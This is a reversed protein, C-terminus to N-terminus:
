AAAILRELEEVALGGPERRERAFENALRQLTENVPTPVGHLRGLLVIEGNLYDAEISGTRRALSQVSSSGMRELGEVPPIDVRDGRVARHEDDGSYAIGAADLVARAEAHTRDAIARAAPPRGVLAELANSTNTVLKGYKWRMVDETAAAVFRAADLDAVVREALADLGAPYRGVHLVGTRPSGEAHVVGPQTHTAPLWVNVGYVWRFTRLALRENEVGNQACLVPLSEAAPRGGVPRDAWGALAGATDQSKTALVLVDDDRPALEGPGGAVPIPLVLEGDPTRMRLGHERLAALHSGRAVLVVERGSEFLRGGIAGGVGGAGVVVYRM